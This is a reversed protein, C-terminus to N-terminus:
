KRRFRRQEGGGAGAGEQEGLCAEEVAPADGGIGGEAGQECLAIGGNAEGQFLAEDVIVHHDARARGGGIEVERDMDDIPEAAM